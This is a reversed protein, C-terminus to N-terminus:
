NVEVKFKAQIIKPANQYGLNFIVKVGDFEGEDSDASDTLALGELRMSGPVYKTNAPVPDSLLTSKIMGSGQLNVELTYTIIAGQVPSAGGSPDSIVQSKNVVVTSDSISYFSESQAVGESSSIVADVGGDGAGPLLTGSPGTGAKSTTQLNIRGQDASNLSSPIDSVIFIKQSENMSVVPDNSGAVYIPDLSPNFINDNDVDIYTRVNVPNFEDGIVQMPDLSYSDDGNGTNTLTFSLVKDVDPSFSLVGSPHNSVLSHNLVELVNFSDINSFIKKSEGASTYTASAQNQILTNAPVGFSLKTFCLSLIFYLLVRM